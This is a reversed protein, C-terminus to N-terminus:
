QLVHRYERQNPVSVVVPSQLIQAVEEQRNVSDDLILLSAIIAITGFGMAALALAAVVIKSPTVPKEQYTPLQAIGVNSIASEDLEEDIRAVEMNEAYRMYSKVALQVNRKLQEIEIEQQNLDAIEAMVRENEQKLKELSAQYGEIQSKVKANELALERRIINIAWTTEKRDTTTRAALEKKLKSEQALMAKLQPHSRQKSQLEAREIQVQQLQAVLTDRGTNPVSKREAIVDVPQQEFQNDLELEMAKAEALKQAAVLMSSGIDNVQNELFSRRGEISALGSSTKANRLEDSSQDVRDKLKQLQESFFKKSGETKHIRGHESKYQDIIARVVAQALAPSETDYIVSVVNSKREAEVVMHKLVEQVAEEHDSIPDIQKITKVVSGLANKISEVVANKSPGEAVGPLPEDGLVVAPGLQAVAREVVGRSGLVDIVSKIEDERDSEQISITEGTSATPDLKSNERGIKIWVKSESRYERPWFLIALIALLLVLLNYFLLKGKHRYIVRIYDLIQMSNEVQM